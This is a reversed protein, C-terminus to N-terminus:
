HVDQSDIDVGLLFLSVRHALSPHGPPGKSLRGDGNRNVWGIWNWCEGPAGRDVKAWFRDEFTQGRARWPKDMPTGSEFRSRHARCFGSSEYPRDCWSVSCVRNTKM